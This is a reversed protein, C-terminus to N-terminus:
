AILSNNIICVHLMTTFGTFYITYNSRRQAKLTPRNDNEQFQYSLRIAHYLQKFILQFKFVYTRAKLNHYSKPM